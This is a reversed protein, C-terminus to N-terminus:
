DEQPQFDHTGYGVGPERRTLNAVARAIGSTPQPPECICKPDNPYCKWPCDRRPSDPELDDDNQPNRETAIRKRRTVYDEPQPAAKVARLYKAAYDAIKCGCKLIVGGCLSCGGLGGEAQVAPADASRCRSCIGSPHM